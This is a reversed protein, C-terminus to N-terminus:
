CIPPNISPYTPLSYTPIHHTYLYIIYLYTPSYIPIYICLRTLLHRFTHPYVIFMHTHQQKCTHILLYTHITIYIPTHSFPHIWSHVCPHTLAQHISSHTPPYTPATLIESCIPHHAIPPHTSLLYIPHLTPCPFFLYSPSGEVM